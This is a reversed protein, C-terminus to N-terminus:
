RCDPLICGADKTLARRARSMEGETVVSGRGKTTPTGRAVGKCRAVSSAYPARRSAHCSGTEQWSSRGTPVAGWWAMRYTFVKTKTLLEERTNSLGRKKQKGFHRTSCTNVTQFIKLHVGYRSYAFKRFFSKYSWCSLRCPLKTGMMHQFYLM